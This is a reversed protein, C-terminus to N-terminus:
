PRLRLVCFGTKELNQWGEIQSQEPCGRPSVVVKAGAGRLKDSIARARVPDLAWFSDPEEVEGIIKLRALHAFYADYGRGILAVSDGAILGSEALKTAVELHPAVRAPPSLIAVTSPIAVLGVSVLALVIESLKGWAAGAAADFLLLWFMVLFATVYRPQTLVVSYMAFAFIVWFLLWANRRLTQVARLRNTRIWLLVLGPVLILVSRGHGWRLENFSLWLAQIQNRVHFRLRLGEHFYAPDYWPPYTGPTTGAYEFVTPQENLVRPPHRPVGTSPSAKTWGFLRPIEAQVMWAYNIRGSEGFTIKNAKRSMVAVLPALIALFTVLLATVAKSPLVCRLVRRQTVFLVVLLAVGLPLLAAKTWAAAGLVTGLAISNGVHAGKPSDRILRFCFGAALFSLGGSLLDPSVAAVASTQILSWLFLAYGLVITSRRRNRSLDTDATHGLYAKLFFTFSGLAFLGIGVNVMHTFLFESPPSVAFCRFVIALIAPYIPSWYLNALESVNGSAAAVAMDLYSMGDENM